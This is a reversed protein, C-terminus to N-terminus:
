RRDGGKGWDAWTPVTYTREKLKGVQGTNTGLHRGLQHDDEFYGPIGEGGGPAKSGQFDRCRGESGRRKSM